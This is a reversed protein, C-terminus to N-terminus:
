GEPHSFRNMDHGNLLAEYEEPIWDRKKVVIKGEEPNVTIGPRVRQIGNIVVRETAALGSRIVRLGEETPGLQVLHRDVVNQDNVVYVFKQTQDSGIAEDPVLLAKLIDSGPVRVRAFMGPTLMLDQNPFVGRARMTGTNPDLRNDVFDIHGKHPFGQEDALGLYLPIRAEPANPRRGEQALRAYKLYTREDTDFYCYIPDLSVVTTLLTAQAASGNILNGQTVFIRSIRGTIPSTVHTFEVNLRAAEVAAKTARLDAAAQREEGAREDYADQSTSGTELLQRSRKLRLASLDHRAQARAHEAESRELEAVFPRPDIVFLLDGKRVVAGEQFDVSEIYGSVRARIEVTEVADLRGTFQDWEIMEVKLPRGVTVKPPSLQAVPQPRECAMALLFVLSLLALRFLAAPKGHQNKRTPINGPM